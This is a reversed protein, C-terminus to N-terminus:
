RPGPGRRAPRSHTRRRCWSFPFAPSSSPVATGAGPRNSRTMPLHVTRRRRSSSPAPMPRTTRAAPAITAVPLPRALGATVGESCSSTAPRTGGTLEGRAVLDAHEAVQNRGHAKAWYVAKDAREFATSPNDDPRVATFGISVTIRGVQPFPYAETAARLREFAQTAHADSGCRLLVVFEEGGFRYLRDHFRFTARMLRSLLLLVEDGILHGHRDNVLKFHDIDIVGLYPKCTACAGRPAGRCAGPRGRQDRLSKYFTDDFTKRNLLGTLMDRESYDLLGQVNRYVRLM